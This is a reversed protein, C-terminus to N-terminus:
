SAPTAPYIQTIGSGATHVLNEVDRSEERRKKNEGGKEGYEKNARSLISWNTDRLVKGEGNCPKSSGKLHFTM